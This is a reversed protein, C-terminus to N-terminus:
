PVRTCDIRWLCFIELSQYIYQIRKWESCFNKENLKSSFRADWEASGMRHPPAISIARTTSTNSKEHSHTTSNAVCGFEVNSPIHCHTSPAQTSAIAAKEVPPPCVYIRHTHVCKYWLIYECIHTRVCETFVIHPLLSPSARRPSRFLPFSPFPSLVNAYAPAYTLCLILSPLLM